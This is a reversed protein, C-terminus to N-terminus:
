QRREDPLANCVVFAASDCPYYLTLPIFPYYSLERTLLSLHCGSLYTAVALAADNLAARRIAAGTASMRLPHMTMFVARRRSSCKRKTGDNRGFIEVDEHNAYADM